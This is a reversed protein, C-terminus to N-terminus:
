AATYGGDIALIGGTIYSAEDSLLWRAGAAIEDPEAFRGIPHRAIITDYNSTFFEKTLPTITGGPMIANVRIGQTAYDLAAARTLGIVGHKAATYDSGSAFGVIGFGSSTNVISGGGSALMASIEYKMCFFMGSLNVDMMTQWELASIQHLAKGAHAIGANNFAGNLRGFQDVAAKVMAAVESEKSIDTSVFFSTGGEATILSCTQEGASSNRDAVLVRAGARALLICASRGIGTGGGTVIFSKGDFSEMNTDWKKTGITSRRGSDVASSLALSRTAGAASITFREVKQRCSM